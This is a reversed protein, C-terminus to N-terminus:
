DGGGSDSSSSDTSGYDGGGSSGGSYDGAGSSEATSPSPDSSPPSSYSPSEPPPSSMAAHLAVHMPLDSSDDRSETFGTRRMPLVPDTAPNISGGLRRVTTHPLGGRDVGSRMWMLCKKCTVETDFYTVDGKEGCVTDDREVVKGHVVPEQHPNPIDVCEEFAREGFVNKRFWQRISM